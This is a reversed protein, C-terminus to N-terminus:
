LHKAAENIATAFAAAGGFMLTFVPKESEIIRVWVLSVPRMILPRLLFSGVFIISLVFRFLSPFLPMALVGCSFHDIIGVYNVIRALNSPYIESLAGHISSIMQRIFVGVPAFFIEYQLFFHMEYFNQYPYPSIRHPEYGPPIELLKLREKYDFILAVTWNRMGDTVPLWVIFIIYNIVLMLMFIILNKAKGTGCLCAMRLTVFKTFSTAVSFGVITVIVEVTIKSLTRNDFFQEYTAQDGFMAQRRLYNFGILAALLVLGELIRRLSWTNKGFWRGILNAAFFGEERGFNKWHIDDFRVWWRLLFDKARQQGTKGILFDIFAGLGGIMVVPWLIDKVTEM